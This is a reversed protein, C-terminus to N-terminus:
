EEGLAYEFNAKATWFAAEAQVYQANATESAAQEQLVDRLLATKQGYQATVERLKETAAQQNAQAVAVAARAERLSRFQNDVNLLVQAKVEDLQQRSQEVVITKQQLTHSRGGWDFPDWKFDFGVAAINSPLFYIGFPSVYHFALNFDPLYQAKALRRQIEAQKVTLGAERVEPHNLLAQEQAAQLNEEELSPAPVPETRFPTDLDRAMLENLTEEASQLKDEAQMLTLNEQALKAEVQLLDSKLATKEALYEKTIRDLEQYQNISAKTAEVAQEAQVIGYYAQHVNASISQRAGRAQEEAQEIALEQGHLNLNVKYLSLLPQTAQVIVFATPTGPTSIPTNEAPIPGTAPYTGFQGEKVTYTINTLTEGGFVYASFSPLRKTKVVLLQQRSVDVNLAANRVNRNNALAIAVARDLTLVPVDGAEPQAAVQPSEAFVKAGFCAASLAAICSLAAIRRLARFRDRTICRNLNM